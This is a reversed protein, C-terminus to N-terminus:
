SSTEEEGAGEGAGEGTGESAEEVAILRVLATRTILGALRDGRLVVLPDTGTRALRAAVDELPTVEEVAHEQFDEKMIEAATRAVIRRTEEDLERQGRRTSLPIAMGFLSLYTPFHVHAHRTVLDAETILGIVEGSPAVVPVGSVRREVILRAVEGVRTEPTVAAPQRDMLDAAVRPAAPKAPPPTGRTM